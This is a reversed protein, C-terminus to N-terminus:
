TFVNCVLDVIYEPKYLPPSPHLCCLNSYTLLGQSLPYWGLAGTLEVALTPQLCWRPVLVARKMVGPPAKKTVLACLSGLDTCEPEEKTLSWASPEVQTTNKVKKQQLNITTFHPM